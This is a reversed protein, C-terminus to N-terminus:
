CRRWRCPCKESYTELCGQAGCSKVWLPAHMMCHQSSVHPPSSHLSSCSPNVQLPRPCGLLVGKVADGLLQALAPLGEPLGCTADIQVAGELPPGVAGEALPQQAASRAQKCWCCHRGFM